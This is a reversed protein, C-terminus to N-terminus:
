HSTHTQYKLKISGHADFVEFTHSPQENYLIKKNLLERLGKIHEKVIINSLARHM